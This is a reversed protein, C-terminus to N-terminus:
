RTEAKWEATYGIRKGGGQYSGSLTLGHWERCCESSCFPDAAAQERHYTGRRPPVREGGCNACRGDLRIPPDTM